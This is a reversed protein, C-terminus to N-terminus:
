IKENKCQRFHIIIQQIKNLMPFLYGLDISWNIGAIMVAGLGSYFLFM